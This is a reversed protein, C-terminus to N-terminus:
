LRSSVSWGMRSPVPPWASREYLELGAVCCRELKRLWAGEVEQGLADIVKQTAWLQTKVAVGFPFKAVDQM